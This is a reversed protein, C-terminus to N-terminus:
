PYDKLFDKDKKLLKFSVIQEQQASLKFDNVALWWDEEMRMCFEIKEAKLLFMLAMSPYGRLLLLLDGPKTKELHMYLLVQESINYPEIPADIVVLNLVDYLFSGLALSRMRNAKPGFGTEKL